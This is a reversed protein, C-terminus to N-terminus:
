PTVSRVAAAVEDVLARSAGRDHGDLAAVRRRDVFWSGGVGAVSPLALYDPVVEPGVGGTPVFRVEPFPGALARVMAPGGLPQAPFLKLLRLGLRSARQVETASAVGPVGLVGHEAAAAIVGEDLGPSVCFAAGAVVAAAVQADRLVTGAGVLLGPTAAMEELVRLAAPTRLTVEACGLGGEVLVRGLEVGDTGEDVVLVPLLPCRGLAEDLSRQPVPAGDAPGGTTADIM